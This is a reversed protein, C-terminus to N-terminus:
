FKASRKVNTKRKKPKRGKINLKDESDADIESDKRKKKLVTLKEFDLTSDDTQMFDLTLNKLSTTM